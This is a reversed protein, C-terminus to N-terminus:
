CPNEFGEIESNVPMGSQFSPAMVISLVAGERLRLEGGLALWLREVIDSTALIAPTEAIVTDRAM